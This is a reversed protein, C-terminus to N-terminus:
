CLDRRMAVIDLESMPAGSQKLSWFLMRIASWEDVLLSLSRFDEIAKQAMIKAEEFGGLSYAVLAKLHNYRAHILPSSLGPTWGALM